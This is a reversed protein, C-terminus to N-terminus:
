FNPSHNPSEWELLEYYSELVESNFHGVKEFIGDLMQDLIPNIGRMHSVVAYSWAFYGRIIAPSWGRPPDVMLNSLNSLKDAIKVLKAEFSITRAHEVQLRKRTVKPLSKDDTVESVISAIKYGFMAELESFTTSTDEITDHLAGACLVNPDTIGALTLIKVVEIPHNIYPDQTTNKRRQTSHKRAAFDIAVALQRIDGGQQNQMVCTRCNLLKLLNLHICKM